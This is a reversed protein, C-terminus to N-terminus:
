LAIHSSARRPWAAAILLFGMTLGFAGGTSARTAPTNAWVGVIDFTWDAGVPILAAVIALGAHRHVFRRTSALCLAALVGAAIGVYLGLCRDCVALAVGDIHLSRSPMQHCAYSFAQMLISRGVPGLYPPLVALLLVAWAGFAVLWVATRDGRSPIRTAFSDLPESPVDPM